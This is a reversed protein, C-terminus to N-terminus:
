AEWQVGKCLGQTSSKVGNVMMVKLTSAQEVLLSLRRVLKSYLFNHTSGSDMLIIVEVQSIYTSLKMINHWQSGQLDHWSLVPSTSDPEQDGLELQENCDQFEESNSSKPEVELKAQAEIVLHFKRLKACKHSLICKTVCWFCLIKRMRNDIEVQSFSKVHDKQGGAASSYGGSVLQVSSSLPVKASLLLPKLQGM